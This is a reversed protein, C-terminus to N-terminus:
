LVGELVGDVVGSESLGAWNVAVVEDERRPAADVPYSTVVVAKPWGLLFPAYEHRYVIAEGFGSAIYSADNTLKIEFVAYSASGDALQTRVTIDPRLRGSSGFYHAVGRDRPGLEGTPPLVAQDYFVTM